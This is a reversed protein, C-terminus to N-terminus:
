RLAENLGKVVGADRAAYGALGAIAENFESSRLVALLQQVAPNEVLQKGCAFLYDETVLRIFDLDFQRAAAQVGFSADAMGSAVYAAVAAHTYEVREYGDIRKGDLRHLALLADFLTRTGSEPERNVFRVRGDVIRELSDIGLPNGRAVMLGMERTVFGIISFEEASLWEKIAAAADKRLAGQPLHVGAIECAGRALSVLSNQNSVYRLDVAAAAGFQTDRELLERLKSIAFGHSAHIRVVGSRRPRVENMETELEQALNQLQPRLRAQLRQGAWVLKEGLATLRTGRGQEREVLPAEFFAAWKEILNWCHRYSMGARQAARTIKGTSRIENLFDLMVLMSQNNRHFRWVPEIEIRIQGTEVNSTRPM